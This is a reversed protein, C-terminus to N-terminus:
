LKKEMYVVGPLPNHYYARADTFGYRRYLKIAPQLRELTDLRMTHYGAKRAEDILLLVLQEGIGHGRFEPPVYLRKMECVGEELPKLAICGAPTQEELALFIFGNPAAYKLLPNGLEAAFDQFCLNENLEKNYASFLNRVSDLECGEELVKKITVM